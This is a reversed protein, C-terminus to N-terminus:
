NLMYLPLHDSYGADHHTVRGKKKSRVNRFPVGGRLLFADDLRGVSTCNNSYIKDLKHWQNNYVHTPAASRTCNTLEKASILEDETNFDGAAIFRRGNMKKMESEVARAAAIRKEEGGDRMSKFHVGIVSLGNALDVRLHPRYGTEVLTSSEIPLSTFIAVGVPMVQPNNASIGKYQCKSAAAAIMDAANQNEVEPSVVIKPCNAAEFVQAVRQAKKLAHSEDWNSTKTSYDEYETGQDIGDFANEVNAIMLLPQQKALGQSLQSKPSHSPTGCATSLLSLLIAIFPLKRFM